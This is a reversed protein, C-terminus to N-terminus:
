LLWLDTPASVGLDIDSHGFLADVVPTAAPGDFHATNPFPIPLPSPPAPLPTLDSLHPVSLTAKVVGTPFVVGM